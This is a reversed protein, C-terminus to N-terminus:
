LSSILSLKVNMNQLFVSFSFDSGILTIAEFKYETFGSFFLISYFWLLFFFCFSVKPTETGVVASKYSEELEDEM